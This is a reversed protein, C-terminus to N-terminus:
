RMPTEVPAEADEPWLAASEYTPVPLQRKRGRYAWIRLMTFNFLTVVAIACAQALLAPLKAVHIIGSALLITLGQGIAYTGHFRLCRGLWSGAGPALRRFTMRDNLIFSLMVGSETAIIAAPLYAWRLAITLVGVITLNLVTSIGGVLLFGGFRRSEAQVLAGAARPVGDMRPMNSVQM